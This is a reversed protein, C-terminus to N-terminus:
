WQAELLVPTHSDLHVLMHVLRHVHLTGGVDPCRGSGLGRYGSESCALAVGVGTHHLQGLCLLSEAEIHHTALFLVRGNVDGPEAEVVSEVM